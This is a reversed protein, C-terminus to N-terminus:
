ADLVERQDIYYDGLGGAAKDRALARHLAAMAATRNGYINIVGQDGDVEVWLVWVHRGPVPPSQRRYATADGPRFATAM